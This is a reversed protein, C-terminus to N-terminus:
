ADDSGEIQSNLHDVSVTLDDIQREFQERVEQPVEKWLCSDTVRSDRHPLGNQPIDNIHGVYCKVIDYCNDPDSWVLSELVWVECLNTGDHLDRRVTLYGGTPYPDTGGESM